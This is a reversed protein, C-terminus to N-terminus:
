RRYGGECWIAVPAPVEKLEAVDGLMVQHGAPNHDPQALPPFPPRTPKPYRVMVRVEEGEGSSVSPKRGTFGMGVQSAIDTLDPRDYAM